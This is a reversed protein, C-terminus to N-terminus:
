ASPCYKEVLEILNGLEENSGMVDFFDDVVTTLVGNQAWSIRADSLESPFITAAAASLYSFQKKKSLYSFNMRSAKALRRKEADSTKISGTTLADDM